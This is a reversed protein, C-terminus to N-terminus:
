WEGTLVDLVDGGRAVRKRVERLDHDFIDAWESLPRESNGLRLYVTNRRNRSNIKRTVWRCNEPSYDGDNDIRDIELGRDFGHELSWATFQKLSVFRNKIGRAGYNKYSRNNPNECRAVIGAYRNRLVMEDSLVDNHQIKLCGCSRTHGRRLENGRAVKSGGCECVCNWRAGHGDSEALSVVTLRGYVNGVEDMPIGPM